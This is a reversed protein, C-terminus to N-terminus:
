VTEDEDVARDADLAVVPPNLLTEEVGADEPCDVGTDLVGIEPEGEEVAVLV